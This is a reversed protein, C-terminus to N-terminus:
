QITVPEAQVTEQETKTLKAQRQSIEIKRAADEIDRESAINYRDFVNRTKHGSVRTAVTEPIGRTGREEGREQASRSLTPWSGWRGPHSKGM